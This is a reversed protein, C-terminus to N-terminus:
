LWTHSYLRRGRGGGIVDLPLHIVLRRAANGHFSLLCPHSNQFQHKLLYINFFELHKVQLNVTSGLQVLASSVIYISSHASFLYTMSDKHLWVSPIVHVDEFM